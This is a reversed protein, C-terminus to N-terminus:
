NGLHLFPLESLPLLKEQSPPLVQLHGPSHCLQTPRACDHLVAQPGAWPHGGRGWTVRQCSLGAPPLSRPATTSAAALITNPRSGTVDPHLRSRAVSLVNECVREAKLKRGGERELGTGAEM